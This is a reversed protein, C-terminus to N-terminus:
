TKNEETAKTESLAKYMDSPSLYGFYKELVESSMMKEKKTIEDFEHRTLKRREAISEESKLSKNDYHLYVGTFVSELNNLVNLIDNRKNKSRSTTKKKFCCRRTKDLQQGIRTSRKLLSETFCRWCTLNPNLQHYTPFNILDTNTFVRIKAM